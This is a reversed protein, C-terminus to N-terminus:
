PVGLIGHVIGAVQKAIWPPISRAVQTYQATRNGEFFYDDPFTQLRAAERVTLSRAQGPDPHIFGHGEKSIHALVPTSPRHACQVRYRGFGPALTVGSDLGTGRDGFLSRPFVELAPSERFCWAYAAAFMYRAVDAPLVARAEHQIVGGLEPVDLWGAVDAAGDEFTTTWPTFGNGPCGLRSISGIAEAMESLVRGEGLAGWGRVAGPAARVAERWGSGSEDHILRGRIRPMGRLVHTVTAKADSPVLLGNRRMRALDSRIALVVTRHRAQPIGYRECEIVHDDPGAEHLAVNRVLSRLEYSLGGPIAALDRRVHEFVTGTAGMIQQCFGPVDDMVIVPPAHAAIIRLYERYLFHRHDSSPGAAERLRSRATEVVPMCPPSGALVWATADGLACRIRADLLDPPIEGPMGNLM